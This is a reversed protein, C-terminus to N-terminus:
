GLPLDILHQVDLLGHLVRAAAVFGPMGHEQTLAEGLFIVADLDKCETKLAESATDIIVALQNEQEASDDRPRGFDSSDIGLRADLQEAEEAKKQQEARRRARKIVTFYSTGGRSPEGSPQDESIPTLLEEVAIM